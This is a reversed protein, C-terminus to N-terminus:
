ALYVMVARFLAQRSGWNKCMQKKIEKLTLDEISQAKKAAGKEKKEEMHIIDEARWEDVLDDRFKFDNTPSYSASKFSFSEGDNDVLYCSGLVFRTFGSGSFFLGETTKGDEVIYFKYGTGGSNNGRRGAFVVTSTIQKKKSM